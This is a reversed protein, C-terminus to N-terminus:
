WNFHDLLARFYVSCQNCTSYFFSDFVYKAAERNREENKALLQEFEENEAQVEKAIM